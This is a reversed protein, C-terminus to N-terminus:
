FLFLLLLSYHIGASTTCSANITACVKLRELPHGAASNVKGEPPLHSFEHQSRVMGLVSHFVSRRASILLNLM